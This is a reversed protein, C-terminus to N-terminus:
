YNESANGMEFGRYRLQSFKILVTPELCSCECTMQDTFRILRLQEIIAALVDCCRHAKFSM